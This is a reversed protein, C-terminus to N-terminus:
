FSNVSLNKPSGFFPEKIADSNFTLPEKHFWWHWYLVKIKLLTHTVRNQKATLGARLVLHRPMLPWRSVPGLKETGSDCLVKEVLAEKICLLNVKTLRSPQCAPCPLWSWGQKIGTGQLVANRLLFTLGTNFVQLAYELCGPSFFLSISPPFLVLADLFLLSPFLFEWRAPNSSVCLNCSTIWVLNWFLLPRFCM